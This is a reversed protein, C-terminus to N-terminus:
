TTGEGTVTIRDKFKEFKGAGIGSVKMIDEPTEFPGNTQRFAIIRGALTKGIGPLTDLEDAGATNIDIRDEAPVASQAPAASAALPRFVVDSADTKLGYAATVAVAAVLCLAATFLWMKEHKQLKLCGDGRGRCRFASM